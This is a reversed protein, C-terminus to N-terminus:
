HGILSATFETVAEDYTPVNFRSKLSNLWQTYAVNDLRQQILRSSVFRGCTDVDDAYQQLQKSNYGVTYGNYMAQKLLPSLFPGQEHLQRQQNSNLWKMCADPRLGYSDFFQIDKPNIPNKFICEWHGIVSNGQKQEMFFIVARGNVDFIEDINKLKAIDPYAIIKVRPVLKEIDNSSLSYAMDKMLTSTTLM